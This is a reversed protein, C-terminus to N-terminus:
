DVGTTWARGINERFLERIGEPDDHDEFDFGEKMYRYRATFADDDLQQDEALRRVYVAWLREAGLALEETVIPFAIRLTRMADLINFGLYILTALHGIRNVCSDDYPWPPM